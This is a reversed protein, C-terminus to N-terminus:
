FNTNLYDYLTSQPSAGRPFTGGAHGRTGDIKLGVAKGGRSCIQEFLFRQTANDAGSASSNPTYFPTQNTGTTVGHCGACSTKVFNDFVPQLSSLQSATPACAGSTSAGPTSTAMDVSCNQFGAIMVGAVAALAIRSVLSPGRRRPPKQGLRREDRQPRPNSNTVVVDAEQVASDM